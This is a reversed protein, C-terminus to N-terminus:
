KENNKGLGYLLLFLFLAVTGSLYTDTRGVFSITNTYFLSGAARILFFIIATLLGAFGIRGSKYWIIGRYFSKIFFFIFICILCVWFALFSSLSSKTVSDGLFVFSIWTVLGITLGEFSEFFKMKQKKIVILFAVLIGFGEIWFWYYNDFYTSVALGLVFGLLVTAALNFIKEYHYDDKLTRWLLYLFTFIGLINAIVM